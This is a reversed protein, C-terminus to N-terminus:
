NSLRFSRRKIVTHSSSESSLQNVISQNLEPTLNAPVFDKGGAIKSFAVDM